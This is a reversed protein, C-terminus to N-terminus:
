IFVVLELPSINSNVNSCFNVLEHHGSAPLDSNFVISHCGDALLCSYISNMHLYIVLQHSGDAPSENSRNIIM